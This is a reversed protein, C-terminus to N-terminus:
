EYSLLIVGAYGCRVESIGRNQNWYYRRFVMKPLFIFKKQMKKCFYKTMDFFLLVKAHKKATHGAECTRIHSLFLFFFAACLFASLFM